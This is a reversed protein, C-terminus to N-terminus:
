RGSGSITPVRALNTTSHTHMPHEHHMYTGVWGWGQAYVEQLLNRLRGDFTSVGVLMLFLVIALSARHRLAREIYQHISIHHHNNTKM